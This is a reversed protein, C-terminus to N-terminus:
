QNLIKKKGLDYEEKTLSGSEYMKKLEKLEDTLSKKYISSADIEAFIGDTGKCKKKKMLNALHYIRDNAARIAVDANHITKAWAPWFFMMRTINGGTGGQVFEADRKIKKSVSIEDILQECSLNADGPLTTKIVKPKACSYLFILCIFFISIIKFIKKM